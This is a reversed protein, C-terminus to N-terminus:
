ENILDEKNDESEILRILKEKFKSEPGYVEFWDLINGLNTTLSKCLSKGQSVINFDHKLDDIAENCRKKNLWEAADVLDEDTKRKYRNNVPGFSTIETGEEVKFEIKDMNELCPKGGISEDDSYQASFKM